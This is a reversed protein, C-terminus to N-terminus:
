EGRRSSFKVKKILKKTTFQVEVRGKQKTEGESGLVKSNGSNDLGWFERTGLVKSDGSSEVGWLM